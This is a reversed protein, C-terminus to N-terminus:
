IMEKVSFISVHHTSGNLQATPEASLDCKQQSRECFTHSMCTPSLLYGLLSENQMKFAHGTEGRPM